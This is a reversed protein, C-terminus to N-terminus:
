AFNENLWVRVQGDRNFGVMKETIDFVGAKAHLDQFGALAESLVYLAEPESFNRVTDLRHPIRETLVKVNQQNGCM